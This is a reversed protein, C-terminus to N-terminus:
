CQNLCSSTTLNNENRTQQTKASALANHRWNTWVDQYNRRSNPEDPLTQVTVPSDLGRDSWVTEFSRRGHRAGLRKGVVTHRPSTTLLASCMTATPAPRDSCWQVPRAGPWTVDGTVTHLPQWCPTLTTKTSQTWRRRWRRLRTLRHVRDQQRHSRMVPKSRCLCVCTIM